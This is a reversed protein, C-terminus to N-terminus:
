KKSRIIPPMKLTVGEKALEKEFSERVAPDEDEYEIQDGGEKVSEAIGWAKGMRYKTGTARLALYRAPEGGTNFHQHFWMEPPVFLSGPQWAIKKREEGERWMVSYGKGKLIVIHAGPGHRHAKKYTGMPFDSIHSGMSNESLEFLIGNGGAGREKQDKLQFSYVDPIFNSEWVRGPISKGRGSFYDEEGKYRDLFRFDNKFIFDLNHFLNMILPRNTVSVYRAPKDGRGNFHSHWTNLPPSFLSGEQWEFIQKEGRKSWITTAGAGSLIFIMEEYLHRQPKLRAGPPIECVYGDDAEESGDLKIIAGLGGKRQWPKLPVTRLDQIYFGRYVPLGEQKLWKEYTNLGPYSEERAM